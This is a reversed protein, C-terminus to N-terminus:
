IIVIGTIASWLRDQDGDVNWKFFYKYHHVGHSYTRCGPSKLCSITYWTYGVIYAVCLTHVVYIELQTALDTKTSYQMGCHLATVDNEGYFVSFQYSSPLLSVWSM